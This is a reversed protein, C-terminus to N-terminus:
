EEDDYYDYDFEQGEYIKGRYKLMCRGCIKLGQPAVLGIMEGCKECGVKRFNLDEKQEKGIRKIPKKEQEPSFGLRTIM